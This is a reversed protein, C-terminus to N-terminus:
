EIGFINNTLTTAFVNFLGNIATRTGAALQNQVDLTTCGLELLMAGSVIVMWAKHYRFARKM